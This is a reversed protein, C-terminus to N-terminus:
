HLTIIVDGGEIGRGYRAECTKVAQKGVPEFEDYNLRAGFEELLVNLDDTMPRHFWGTPHMLSRVGMSAGLHDFIEYSTYNRSASRCIVKLEAPLGLAVKIQLQHTKPYIGPRDEGIVQSTFQM